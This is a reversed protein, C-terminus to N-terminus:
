EAPDALVLRLVAEFGDDRGRAPSHLELKGDSQELITEVIALGLGAGAVKAGGREFRHTLKALRAALVLPGGNVVHLAGAGDLSIEVAGGETGHHLANDILNRLVIAFADVDIRAFLRQHGGDDFRLRAGVDGRRSFEEILLRLAPMVDIPDRNLAIGADARALQL